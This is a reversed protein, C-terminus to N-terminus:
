KVNLTAEEKNIGSVSLKVSGNALIKDVLEKLKITHEVLLTAKKDAYDDSNVSKVGHLKEIYTTLQSLQEYEINNITITSNGSGTSASASKDSKKAGPTWNDKEKALFIVAQKIVDEAAMQLAPNQDTTNSFDFGHIGFSTGGSTEKDASFSRTALIDRTKPDVVQIIIGLSATNKKNGVGMIKSSKSAVEYRTVEGTVVYNAAVMKPDIRTRKDSNGSKSQNIEGQLDSMNSVQALVRFCNVESLFNTLMTALNGGFAGSPQQPSTVNFRAVTVRLRSELPLDKCVASITDLSITAEKMKDKKKDKQAVTILGSVLCIILITLKKM